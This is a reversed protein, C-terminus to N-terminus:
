TSTREQRIVCLARRIAGVRSTRKLVFATMAMMGLRRRPQSILTQLNADPGAAAPLPMRGPSEAALELRYGTGVLCNSLGVFAVELTSLLCDLDPASDVADASTQIEFLYRTSNGDGDLKVAPRAEDQRM